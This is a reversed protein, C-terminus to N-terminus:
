CGALSAGDSRPDDPVMTMSMSEFLWSPLSASQLILSIILKTTFRINAIMVSSSFSLNKKYVASGRDDSGTSRVVDMSHLFSALFSQKIATATRKCLGRQWVARQHMCREREYLRKM